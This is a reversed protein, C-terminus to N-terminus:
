TEVAGRTHHAPVVPAVEELPSRWWGGGKKLDFRQTARTRLENRLRTRAWVFFFADTLMSIIFWAGLASDMPNSLQGISVFVILTLYGFFLLWPLALVRFVSGSAALNIRKSTLGLWMGVWALTVLDAIFVILGGACMLLWSNPSDLLQDNAGATVMVLDVLLIIGVAPGFQRQFAWLQGRLIDDVSLPTSLILELAGSRRDHAFPRCAESALWLKIATHLLLATTVHTASDLMDQRYKAFLWLWGSAALALFALVYVPKLRDRSVLWYIPNIDLLRTRYWDRAAGAGYKARLWADRWTAPKGVLPRDQWFMPALWSALVLFCWGVGHTVGVSLWFHSRLPTYHADVAMYLSYPPSSLLCTRDFIFRSSRQADIWGILPPLAVTLLILTLAAAMAKRENYSVASALIGASLSFFLTNSLVLVVRWFEGVALGGLLIPIALIPFVALLGYCCNLSTAALKGLVIDYGKLDTLFLLGFTGDRKEESICDATVVVGAMLSYILALIPLTYFLDNALTGPAANAPSVAWIWAAIGIAMSAGIFRIWYTIPRRSSVRLERDVVPLFIM